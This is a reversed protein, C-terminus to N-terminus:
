LLEKGVQPGTDWEGPQYDGTYGSFRDRLTRYSNKAAKKIVITGDEAASLEVPEHDSYSLAELLRKPIRVAHSNGLTFVNTQFTMM